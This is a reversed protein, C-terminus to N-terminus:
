IPVWHGIRCELLVLRIRTAKTIHPMAQAVSHSHHACPSTHISSVTPVTMHTLSCSSDGKKSRVLRPEPLCRWTSRPRERVAFPKPNQFGFGLVEGSESPSPNLTEFGLVWFRAARPRRLRRTTPTGTWTRRKSLKPLKALTGSPRPPLLLPCPM